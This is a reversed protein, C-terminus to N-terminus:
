RPALSEFVRWISAEDFLFPHVMCTTVGADAFAQLRERCHEASGIIALRDVMEDTVAALNRGRDKAQWGALIAEAETPFGCWAVFRNYVSTAFYPGMMMRLAARAGPVDDTVVTQFRSVIELSGPDRGAREAGRRVHEMMRPVAEVPMFNLIVGDAIEGALELMPPMLAALYIPVPSPPLSMLRFGRTRVTRGEFTVREGALMQRLVTVTERMRTLPRRFPIGGWADVITPSSAGIGLVFRGAALQALSGTAAAMVSPSRTYVPVVATGIRLRTTATAVASGVVFADPGAGTDALWVSDYGLAEAREAVRRCMALDPPVPLSAALRPTM